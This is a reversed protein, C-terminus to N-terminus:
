RVHRLRGATSPAGLFVVKTVLDRYVISDVFERWVFANKRLATGSIPIRSRNPDIRRDIAGLAQSVHEGYFESSYFANIIHGALLKKLYAEHRSNIEPTDGVETPGDWAEIVQVTPYLQKIWGSRIPLPINTVEPSDYIIAIVRDNEKLAIDFLLQHGRHLPAFKGLVLGTTM